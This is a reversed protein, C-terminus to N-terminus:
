LTCSRYVESKDTNLSNFNTGQSIQGKNWACEEVEFVTQLWRLEWIYSFVCVPVCVCANQISTEYLLLDCLTFIVYPPLKGNFTALLTHANVYVPVSHNM